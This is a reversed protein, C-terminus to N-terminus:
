SFLFLFSFHSIALGLGVVASTLPLPAALAELAVALGFGFGLLGLFIISLGIIHHWVQFQFTEALDVIYVRGRYFIGPLMIDRELRRQVFVHSRVSEGRNAM